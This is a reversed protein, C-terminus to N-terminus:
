WRATVLNGPQLTGRMKASTGGRVLGVHRGAEATLVTVVASGEGHPRVSLILGDAQWEPMTIWIGCPIAPLIM